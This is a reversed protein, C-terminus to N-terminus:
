GEEQNHRSYDLSILNIATIMLAIMLVFLAIILYWFLIINPANEM